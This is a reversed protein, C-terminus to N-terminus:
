ETEVDGTSVTENGSLGSLVEANVFDRLGVEIPRFELEGDEHVIFVAYQGPVLERLAQVPVLVADRAEGSTIEVDANMGFLLNVPHETLDIRAWAQVAQAGDVEVLTPDVRVIQGTYTFEPFAEFLVSVKNGPAASVIDLEEVWFRVQATESEAVTMIAESGVQEGTQANIATVVGSIPSAIRTGALDLELVDQEHLVRQIALEATEVEGADPGKLLEELQAWAQTVQAEGATVALPDVGEELADLQAQAQAIRARATTLEEQKPGVANINYQALAKEYAITAEQLTAAQATTGVNERWAIRNYDAQAQQLAIEAVRLDAQLTTEEDASPGSLLTNLEQQASLLENRAAELENENPPTFLAEYDAQASALNAQASAVDAYNAEKMLEALQLEAQRLDFDAQVMQQRIAADDLQALLDGAAVVDGVQVALDTITGSTGFGLNVEKSPLLTGVGGATIVIDGRRVQAIAPAAEVVAEPQPLFNTYYYYGAGAAVIVLLVIAWWM